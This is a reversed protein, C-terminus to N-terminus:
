KLRYYYRFKYLEKKHSKIFEQYKEDWIKNWEGKKYNSMKLVYNSSSTYPRRM